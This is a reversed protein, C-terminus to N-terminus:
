LRATGRYTFTMPRPGPLYWTKLDSIRFGAATILDDIERNLHCGGAIRRWMPTLRDQWAAVDTDPARGHEAFILCGSPKLVRKVQHLAKLPNAISCLTWTIVVTDITGDALPLSQEASQSLFDVKLPAKAANRQAMRQLELSPEVGYIRSVEESYFPLNLGSGIGIELVEGRARAVCEPRVRTTEKNRLAEASALLLGSGGPV